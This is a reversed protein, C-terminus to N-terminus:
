VISIVTAGIASAVSDDHATFIVLRSRAEQRMIALVEACLTPDLEKFPEDLLLIPADSLFARALSVRQKMGGSLESPLHHAYSLLSLRELMALARARDQDSPKKYLVLLINDLVSLNPLLRYEQFSVAVHGEIQVTGADHSELGALIRLLTTKGAGSKGSLAYLGTNGFTFSLNNLVVRSDFRKQISKLIIAM